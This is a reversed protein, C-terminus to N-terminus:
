EVRKVAMVDGPTNDNDWRTTEIPWPTPDVWGATIGNGRIQCLLKTGVPLRPKRGKTLTFGTAPIPQRPM